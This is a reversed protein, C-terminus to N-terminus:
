GLNPKTGALLLPILGGNSTGSSTKISVSNFGPASSSADPVTM